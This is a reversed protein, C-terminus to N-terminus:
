KTERDYRVGVGKNMPTFTTLKESVLFIHRRILQLGYRDGSRKRCPPKIQYTQKLSSFASECPWGFETLKVMLLSRRSNTTVEAGGRMKRTTPVCYPQRRSTYPKRRRRVGSHWSSNWRRKTVADGQGAGKGTEMDPTNGTAGVRESWWGRCGQGVGGCTSSARHGARLRV